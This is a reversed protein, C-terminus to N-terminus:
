EFLKVLKFNVVDVLGKDTLRLEPVVSLALFSLESFPNEIEIGLEKAASELREFSAAVEKAPLESMIGAIKLPLEALVLGGAVAVMGGELKEIRRIASVMDEDNTGMCIINHSDHAITQAVAGKKMGFGKVFGLGIRGTAKHREVVALKLIDKGVDALAVGGEEHVLVTRSKSLIQGPVVEIVKIYNSKAPIRLSKVSIPKINISDKVLAKPKLKAPKTVKGKDFVVQGRKIVMKVEFDTIDDLVVLDAFYGPAVAGLDNLRYHEAINITAMQIAVVPNIGLKVAKALIKDLHGEVLDAVAADDSCFMFNRSNTENVLPLLAEMNKTLSGERVLIKMGLKLKEKAEELTTAEHETDIGASVYAALNKGTLGPCHGDVCKRKERALDIKEIIKETRKLVGPYNMVEALGLVREKNILSRLDEAGIKNGSTEFESSPVCSPLMVFLDVPLGEAQELMYKIGPVGLVNAIEHPDTVVAGTGFPVVTNAFEAPNLYSSEVHIHADIFSPAVYKGNLDITKEAAVDGFGVVRDKYIAINASYVEGSFVNVLQCNKLLLDAKKLGQAVAIYEKLTRM